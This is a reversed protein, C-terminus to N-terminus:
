KGGKDGGGDGGPKGAKELVLDDMYIKADKRGPITFVLSTVKSLTPSGMPLMDALNFSVDVWTKSPLSIEDQFNDADTTCILLHISMTEPGDFYFSGKIVSFRSWDRPVSGFHIFPRDGVLEWLLSGNGSKVPAPASVKKVSSREVYVFRDDDPREFDAIVFRDAKPDVAVDKPPNRGRTPAEAETLALDDIAFAREEPGCYVLSLLAVLDWDMLGKVAMRSVPVCIQSWGASEIRLPMVGFNLANQGVAFYLGSALPKESWIWMRIEARSGFMSDLDRLHLHSFGAGAGWLGAKKGGHVISGQVGFTGGLCVWRKPGTGDDEFDCLSGGMATQSFVAAAAAAALLFCAKRM